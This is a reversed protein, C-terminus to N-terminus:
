KGGILMRLQRLDMREDAASSGGEELRYSEALTDLIPEIMDRSTKYETLYKPDNTLLFGRLATEATTLDNLLEALQTQRLQIAQIRANLATAGRQGEMALLLIGIMFVMTTGAALWLYSRTKM